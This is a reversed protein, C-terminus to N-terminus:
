GSAPPRPEACRGALRLQRYVTLVGIARELEAAISAFFQRRYNEDTVAYVTFYRGAFASLFVSVQFLQTSVPIWGLSPLATPTLGVWTEIVEEGIAVSGFMLFFAFVAVALSLVQLAQSFLLVLVLNARQLASLHTESEVHPGSLAAAAEAVPTTACIQVLRDGQAENSVRRVEEPLRVLLFAAAVGAFLLVSLWLTARDLGSAVQWVEANIFLFTMFLLLLPLARTILPFFWSLSGFTQRVAWRLISGMQLSFVAYLAVVTAGVVAALLVGNSVDGTALGLAIGAGTALLFAVSFVPILRPLSLAARLTKENREVFYPLGNDEFWHEAQRVQAQRQEDTM